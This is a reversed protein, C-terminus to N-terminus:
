KAAEKVRNVHDQKALTLRVISKKTAKLDHPVLADLTILDGSKLTHTKGHVGFVIEGSFIEVIIPFPAKHEKMFQNEDFVIRIEKSFATEMLVTINPKEGDCYTIDSLLAAKIM